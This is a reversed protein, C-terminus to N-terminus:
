APLPKGNRKRFQPNGRRPPSFAHAASQEILKVQGVVRAPLLGDRVYRSVCAYSRGIVKAAEEVTYFGPIQSM